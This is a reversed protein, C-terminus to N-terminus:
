MVTGTGRCRWTHFNQRQVALQKTLSVRPIQNDDARQFARQHKTRQCEKSGIQSMYVPEIVTKNAKRKAGITDAPQNVGCRNVSQHM